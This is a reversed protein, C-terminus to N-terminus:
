LREAVQKLRQLQAEMDRQTWSAAFWDFGFNVLGNPITFEFRNLLTTGMQAGEEPICEWRDCGVFFGEFRWVVLGPARQAVVSHLTPQWEKPLLPIQLRFDFESGVATRWDGVPECILAPNLWRHMLEQETFCREVQTANARIFVSQEFVRELSMTAGFLM